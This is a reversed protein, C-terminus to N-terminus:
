RMSMQPLSLFTSLSLSLQALCLVLMLPPVSVMGWMSLALSGLLSKLIAAM